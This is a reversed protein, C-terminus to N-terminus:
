HPCDYKLTTEGGSKLHIPEHRHSSVLEMLTDFAQMIVVVVVIFGHMMHTLAVSVHEDSKEEGLVFKKDSRVRIRYIFSHISGYQLM